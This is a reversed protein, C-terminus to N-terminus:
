DDANNIVEYSIKLGTLDVTGKDSMCRKLHWILTYEVREASPDSCWSDDYVDTLEVQCNVILKKM